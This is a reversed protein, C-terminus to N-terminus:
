DLLREHGSEGIHVGAMEFVYLGDLQVDAGKDKSEYVAANVLVPSRVVGLTAHAVCCGHSRTKM